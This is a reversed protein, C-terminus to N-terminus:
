NCLLVQKIDDFLKKSKTSLPKKFETIWSTQLDLVDQLYGICPAACLTPRRSAPIPSYGDKLKWSSCSLSARGFEFIIVDNITNKAKIVSALKAFPEVNGLKDSVAAISRLNSEALKREAGLNAVSTEVIDASYRETYEFLMLRVKMEKNGLRGADLTGDLRNAANSLLDAFNALYRFYSVSFSDAPKVQIWRDFCDAVVTLDVAPIRTQQVLHDNLTAFVDIRDHAVSPCALTGSNWLVLSVLFVSEARKRVLWRLM